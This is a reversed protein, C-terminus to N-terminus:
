TRSAKPDPKQAAPKRSVRVLTGTAIAESLKQLCFVLSKKKLQVLREDVQRSKKQPM